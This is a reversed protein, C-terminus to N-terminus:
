SLEAFLEPNSDTAIDETRGSEHNFLVLKRKDFNYCINNGGAEIAVPFLKVQAFREFIGLASNADDRNYSYLSNFVYGAAQTTSFDKTSPRGGNHEEMCHLLEDPLDAGCEKALDKIASKNELPKVYKWNISMM